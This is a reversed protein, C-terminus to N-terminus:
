LKPFTERQKRYRAWVNEFWNDPEPLPRVPVTRSVYNMEERRTLLVLNATDKHPQYTYAALEESVPVGASIQLMASGRSGFTEGAAIMANLLARQTELIDRTRLMNAIQAPRNWRATRPFNIVQEKLEQEYVKMGELDRIHAACGTMRAQAKQRIAATNAESENATYTREILAKLAPVAKEALWKSMARDFEEQHHAAIHEAARFSGVQTANLATGGPRHVGFNGAVEGTAYLGKVNTEWNANVALGGNHHQACIAVQLPETYLDINHSHYLDIALPNMHALREVPTKQVAGSNKLYTAAEAGLGDLGNEIGKPDTRFDMYVKRGLTVTEHHVIVDIMSSAHVKNVDFPWQYGKLFVHDLAKEPSEFYEPLFEREVGNEDVSIYRPLVQQYTGSVNWRFGISALGYQWESLNAGEVGARLAMGSMGTQSAPFVSTLYCGAPGGTALIVRPCQVISIGRCPEELRSQDICLFGYIRGDQVLLECVLFGDMVPIGKTDVSRELAETMYHSTLPGASTARQRPDHDTKYGAYEGYENTPFGVGLGALKMFARVSGAAEALATDGNVGEGDFLTEAMERVSDTEGALSLKYYTQKDSGTNRSTGMKRGETFLAIRRMGLDYLSDAANFGACGSGIVAAHFRYRPYAIGDITTYQPEWFKDSM